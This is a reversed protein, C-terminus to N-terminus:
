GEFPKILFCCVQAWPSNWQQQQARWFMQSNQLSLHPMWLVCVWWMQMAAEQCPIHLWFVWSIPLSEQLEPIKPWTCLNTENSKVQVILFKSAYLVYSIMLASFTRWVGFNQGKPKPNDKIRAKYAQPNNPKAKTQQPQTKNNNQPNKRLLFKRLCTNPTPKATDSRCLWHHYKAGFPLM